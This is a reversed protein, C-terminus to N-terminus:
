CENGTVALLNTEGDAEVPRRGFCGDGAGVSGAVRDGHHESMQGDDESSCTRHNPLIEM